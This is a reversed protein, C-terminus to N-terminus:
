CKDKDDGKIKKWIGEFFKLNHTVIWAGLTVGIGTSLGQLISTFFPSNFFNSIYDM